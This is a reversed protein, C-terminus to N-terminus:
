ALWGEAGPFGEGRKKELEPVKAQAVEWGKTLLARNTQM